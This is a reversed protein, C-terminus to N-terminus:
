GKRKKSLLFYAVIAIWGMAPIAGLGKELIKGGADLAASAAKEAYQVGANLIRETGEALSILFGDVGSETDREKVADRLATVKQATQFIMLGTADAKNRTWPRSRVLDIRDIMNQISAKETLVLKSMRDALRLGKTYKYSDVLTKRCLALADNAQADSVIKDAFVKAQRQWEPRPRPDSKTAPKPTTAMTAM